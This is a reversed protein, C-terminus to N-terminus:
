KNSKRIEGNTKKSENLTTIGPRNSNNGSSNNGSNSPIPKLGKGSKIDEMTKDTM